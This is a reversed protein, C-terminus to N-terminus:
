LFSGSISLYGARQAYPFNALTDPHNMGISMFFLRYSEGEYGALNVDVNWRFRYGGGDGYYWAEPAQVVGIQGRIGGFEGDPIGDAKLRSVVVSEPLATGASFGITAEHLVPQPQVAVAAALDLFGGLQYQQLHVTQFPTSEVDNTGPASVGEYQLARFFVATSGVTDVADGVLWDFDSFGTRVYPLLDQLAPAEQDFGRAVTGLFFRTQPQRINAYGGRSGVYAASLEIVEADIRAGVMADFTVSFDDRGFERQYFAIPSGLILGAGLFPSVARENWEPAALTHASSSGALFFTAPGAKIGAGFAGASLDVASMETGREGCVPLSMVGPTATVTYHAVYLPTIEMLPLLHDELLAAAGYVRANTNIAGQMLNYGTTGRIPGDPCTQANAVLALLLAIM